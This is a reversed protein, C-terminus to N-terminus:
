RVNILIATLLFDVFLLHQLPPLCTVVCYILFHYLINPPSSFIYDSTAYLDIGDAGCGVALAAKKLRLVAQATRDMVTDSLVFGDKLGM